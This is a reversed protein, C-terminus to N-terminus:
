CPAPALSKVHAGYSELVSKPDGQDIILGGRLWIVRDCLSQVQSESHSVFVVTQEGEIRERLAAEAKQRFRADGVSLIEDILMIDVHTMLATTFGLRSMMGSSYTKVPEEFSNGLESFEKIDSLYSEAQRQSSGQLMSAIVANDRGSLNPKFGLGITLLASSADSRQHIVGSDPPIIGAMLRLITTKGCGNEGVVGLTEGEHLKLSVSDLVHHLGNEFSSKKSRFSMSVDFLELMVGSNKECMM